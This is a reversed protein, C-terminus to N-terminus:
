DKTYGTTNVFSKMSAKRWRETQVKRWIKAAMAKIKAEYKVSNLGVKAVAYTMFLKKRFKRANEKAKAAPLTIGKEVNKTIRLAGKNGYTDYATQAKKYGFANKVREDQQEKKIERRSKHNAAEGVEKGDGSYGKPYPQFRRIGWKMGLIGHHSLEDSFDLQTNPVIYM